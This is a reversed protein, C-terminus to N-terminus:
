PVLVEIKERDELLYTPRGSANPITKAPDIGLVHYITALVNEPSFPKGKAREGRPGTDGIAQGMRLGGGAFLVFGAEPYHDRGGDRNIRPSRGFEGWVVVLVDNELGREHLDTILAHILRDYTPLKRRLSEFNTLKRSDNPGHTDWNGDSRAHEPMCSLTVVSVGSEVLRLALLLNMGSPDIRYKARVKEPERNIDFAERTKSSSIMDLAQSTFADMGAVEGRTDLDRRLTDFRKLLATRHALRDPSQSRLNALLGYPSVPRHATGLYAPDGPDGGRSVYTPMTTGAGRRLRNVFSGFVPREKDNVGRMLTEPRHGEVTKLGRVIALKDAIKAQEPMLQCIDVGPVNTRIPQFEGRFEAPANPKMDYMDVHSPGGELYISIVAKHALKPNVAGQAKLMQLNALTLGGFGLAGVKLFHRRSIGGCLRHQKGTWATLM